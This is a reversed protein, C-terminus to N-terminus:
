FIVMIESELVCWDVEKLRRLEKNKPVLAYIKGENAEKCELSLRMFLEDEEIALISSTFVNQAGKIQRAILVNNEKFGLTIPKHIFDKLNQELLLVFFVKDGAIVKLRSIELLSELAELNGEIKNM